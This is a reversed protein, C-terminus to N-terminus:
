LSPFRLLVKERERWAALPSLAYFSFLFEPAENERQKTTNLRKPLRSPSGSKRADKNGRESAGEGGRGADTREKAPLGAQRICLNYPGREQFKRAEEIFEGGRGTATM